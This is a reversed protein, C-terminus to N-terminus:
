REMIQKFEILQEYNNDKSGYTSHFLRHIDKNLTTGNNIDYRKDKNSAFNEIHHVELNGGVVGLINCTYNDRQFVSNRWQKYKQRQRELINIDTLGGKWLHSKEGQVNKREEDTWKRGKNSLRIKNKHEESLPVRKIGKESKRIKEKIEETMTFLRGHGLKFGNPRIIGKNKCIKMVLWYSSNVQKAVNELSIGSLYLSIVEEDNPQERTIM